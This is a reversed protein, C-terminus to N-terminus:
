RAPGRLLALGRELMSAATSIVLLWGLVAIWGDPPWGIQLGERIVPIGVLVFYAIGNNRGIISTRLERGALAQSDFVYQVFALAVLPALFPNVLDLWALAGLCSAVYAADTAHDFLGGVRTAHNLRRALPGDLLDTIVALAFLAAALPWQGSVIALACPVALGLRVATLLNAWTFWM